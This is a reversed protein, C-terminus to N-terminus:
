ALPHGPGVYLTVAVTFGTGTIVLGGAEYEWCIHLASVKFKIGVDVIPPVVKVQVLEMEPGILPAETVAVPEPFMVSEGTLVPFTEPVTVYLIVGAKLPQLPSGTSRTTVTLGDGEAEAELTVIQLPSVAIILILGAGLFTEPVVNEHVADAVALTTPQLLPLPARILWVNLVVFELM